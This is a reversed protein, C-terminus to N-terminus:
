VPIWIFRFSSVLVNIITEFQFFGKPKQPKYLFLETSWPNFVIDFMKVEYLTMACWFILNQHVKSQLMRSKEEVTKTQDGSWM